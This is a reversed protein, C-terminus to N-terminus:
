VKGSLYFQYKKYLVLLQYVASLKILRGKCAVFCQLYNGYLHFMKDKKFNIKDNYYLHKRDTFPQTICIKALTIVFLKPHFFFRMKELTALPTGKNWMGIFEVIEFGSSECSSKAWSWGCNVEKQFGILNWKCLGFIIFNKKISSNNLYLFILKTTQKVILIIINVKILDFVYWLPIKKLERSTLIQCRQSWM